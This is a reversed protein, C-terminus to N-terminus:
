NRDKEEDTWFVDKLKQLFGKEQKIPKNSDKNGDTEGRGTTIGDVSGNLNTQTKAYASILDHQETTLNKPIKIRIHVYHDGSGYSGLRPIGRGPLRIRHHSQIGSPIKVDMAGNIGPTRIRGGLIAQTFSIAVDSHIDYGDRQFTDSDAVRVIIYAETHAVPIRLSQGDSVGAPVQVTVTQTRTTTGTGRCEKCPTSIIRGEGHCHRCTSRMHFLGTNVVEQGTGRCYPCTQTKTGPEGGGGGCRECMAQVRMSLDKTCGKVAEMFTLNVSLQQSPGGFEHGFMSGLDKFDGGFFQRFIEEARMTTFPTGGGHTASSFESFGSYDYAQRKQQDSLVEYAEGIKTFKKATESDGKNRDPHYKKALEYYAKKIEEQSANRPVGLVKYYDEKFRTADMHVCRLLSGAAGVRTHDHKPTIVTREIIGHPLQTPNRLLQITSILRYSRRM